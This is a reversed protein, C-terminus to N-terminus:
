SRRPGGRRSRDFYATVIHLADAEIYYVVRLMRGGFESIPAFALTVTPDHAGSETWEPNAVVREIWQLNIAREAIATRAHETYIFPLQPV